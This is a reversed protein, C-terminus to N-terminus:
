LLKSIVNKASKKSNQHRTGVRQHSLMDKKYQEQLFGERLMVQVKYKELLQIRRELEMEGKKKEMALFYRARAVEPHESSVKGTRVHLYYSHGSRTDSQPVWEVPVRQKSAKALTASEYKMWHNKFGEKELEIERDVKGAEQRAEAYLEISERELQLSSAFIDRHVKWQKEAEREEVCKVIAKRKHLNMKSLFQRCLLQLKEIAGRRKRTFMIAKFRRFNSQIRVAAKWANNLQQAHYGTGSGSIQDRMYQLRQQVEELFAQRENRDARAEEILNSRLRKRSLNMRRKKRNMLFYRLIRKGAIKRVFGQLAVGFGGWRSQSEEFAAALMSSSGERLRAQVVNVLHRLVSKDKEMENASAREDGPSPKSSELRSLSKKIAAFLKSGGKKQPPAAPTTSANGSANVTAEKTAANKDGEEKKTIQPANSGGGKKNDGEKPGGKGTYVVTDSSSVSTYSTERLAGESSKNNNKDEADEPVKSAPVEGEEAFDRFTPGDSESDSSHSSGEEEDEEEKKEEEGEEKKEEVKGEETKEEKVTEEGGGDEEEKDFSSTYSANSNTHSPSHSDSHSYSSHLSGQEKGSASGVSKESGHQSRMSGSKKQSHQAGRGWDKDPGSHDVALKSRYGGGGRKVQPASSPPQPYRRRMADDRKKGQGGRIGASTSPRSVDLRPPPRRIHKPQEQKFVNRNGEDETWRFARNVLKSIKLLLEDMMIRSHLCETAKSMLYKILPPLSSPNGEHLSLAELLPKFLGEQISSWNQVSFITSHEAVDRNKENGKELATKVVREKMRRSSHLFSKHLSSLAVERPSNVEEERSLKFPLGWKQERESLPDQRSAREVRVVERLFDDARISLETTFSLLIQDEEQRRRREADGYYLLCFGLARETNLREEEVTSPRGRSSLDVGPVVTGDYKGKMTDDLTRIDHLRSSLSADLEKGFRGLVKKLEIRAPQGEDSKVRAWHRPSAGYVGGSM